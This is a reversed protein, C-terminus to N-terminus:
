LQTLDDFSQANRIGHLMEHNAYALAYRCSINNLNTYIGLRIRGQTVPCMAFWQDCIESSSLAVSYVLSDKTFGLWRINTRSIGSWIRRDRVHFELDAPGILQVADQHVVVLMSKGDFIIDHFMGNQSCLEDFLGREYELHFVGLEKLSYVRILGGTYLDEISAIMMEWVLAHIDKSAYGRLRNQANLSGSGGGFVEENVYLPLSFHERPLWGCIHITSHVENRSRPFRFFFEHALSVVNSLEEPLNRSIIEDQVFSVMNHCRNTDGVLTLFNTRLIVAFKCAADNNLMELDKLNPDSVKYMQTERSDVAVLIHTPSVRLWLVTTGHSPGATFNKKACVQGLQEDEVEKPDNLVDGSEGDGTSCSFREQEEDEEPDICSNLVEAIVGVDKSRCAFQEQGLQEDEDENPDNLVEGSEGDGTSCAFREQENHFMHEEDEDAEDEDEQPDLCSNLVEAIVGVDKSRCAFQEQGLQEDEDENPDNLVERSEGDCISCTFREQENHFMHEEDEDAEDEDEQPDLCSNLVEAIVGVDKSRCAFQEQRLQEDEDVKPDNLVERSEGDGTSCAFREQENHFMHEEDEDAEDEDEQPDLCSNLVEAIVGVDKSRCAFQEQLIQPNIFHSIRWQEVKKLHLMTYTAGSESDEGGPISVEITPPRCKVLGVSIIAHQM